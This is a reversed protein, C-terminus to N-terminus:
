KTGRTFQRILDQPNGTANSSIDLKTTQSIQTESEDIFTKGSTSIVKLQAATHELAHVQAQIDEVWETMTNNAMAKPQTAELESISLTGPTKWASLEKKLRDRTETYRELSNAMDINRPNPKPAQEKTIQKLKSMNTNKWQTYWTRAFDMSNSDDLVKLNKLSLEFSQDLLSSFRGLTETNLDISTHLDSKRSKSNLISRRDRGTRKATSKASHQIKKKKKSTSKIATGDINERTRKSRRISSQTLAPTSSAAPPSDVEPQSLDAGM